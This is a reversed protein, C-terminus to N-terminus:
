LELQIDKLGELTKIYESVSDQRKKQILFGQISEKVQDFPLGGVMQTNADYFSKAEEDSVTIRAVKEALYSQIIQDEARGDTPIGDIKADRAIIKQTVKQELLFFLSGEVQKRIDQPLQQVTEDIWARSIEFGGASLLIDPSMEVLQASKLVGAALDPYKEEIISTDSASASICIIFTLGWTAVWSIIKPYSIRLFRILRTPM